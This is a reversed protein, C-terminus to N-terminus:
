FIERAKKKELIIDGIKTAVATRLLNGLSNNKGYRPICGGMARKPEFIKKFFKIKASINKGKDLVCFCKGKNDDVLRFCPIDTLGDGIYIM